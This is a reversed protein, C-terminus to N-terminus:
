YLPDPVHIGLENRLYMLVSPLHLGKTDSVMSQGVQTVKYIFEFHLRRMKRWIEVHSIASIPTYYGNVSIPNAPKKFKDKYQNLGGIQPKWGYEPIPKNFDFDNHLPTDVLQKDLALWTQNESLMFSMYHGVQLWIENPYKLPSTIAWNDRRYFNAEIISEAFMSLCYQRFVPDPLLFEIKEKADMESCPNSTLNEMKESKKELSCAL